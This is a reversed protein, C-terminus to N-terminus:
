RSEFAFAHPLRRSPMGGMANIQAITQASSDSRISKRRELEAVAHLLLDPSSYSYGAILALKKVQDDSLGELEVLQRVYVLDCELLQHFPHRPDNDRITPAISWEKLNHLCHPLFGNKRMWLDIDGFSPQDHYLTVFSAETQIVMCEDLASGANNLVMLEAGQIDMKLFDINQLIEVDALRRTQVESQDLIEGIYNFANFFSLRRENPKLISTMGSEPRALYLTQAQGDAIVDSLVRTSPGYAEMLPQIQREDGDVATLRALGRELLPKYPPTEAITAAGIDVVHMQGSFQLIQEFTM